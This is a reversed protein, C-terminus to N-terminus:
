VHHFSRIREDDHRKASSAPAQEDAEARSFWYRAMDLWRLRDPLSSAERALGLCKLGQARFDEANPM